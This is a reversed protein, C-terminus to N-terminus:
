RARVGCWIIRFAIPHRHAPAPSRRPSLTTSRRGLSLYGLGLDILVRLRAVIDASIRVAVETTEGSLADPTAASAGSLEATPQLLAIVREISLANVEAITHGNFLVALAESRLGAGGCVPCTASRVFQMARERMQQSKSDTLVHLVHQRASWFKGNYGYDTRGPEPEVLVSPQEDTLM